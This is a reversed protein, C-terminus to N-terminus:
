LVSSLFEVFKKKKETKTNNGKINAILSASGTRQLGLTVSGEKVFSNM